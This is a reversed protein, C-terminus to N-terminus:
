TASAVKATACRYQSQVSVPQHARALTVVDPLVLCGHLGAVKVDRVAATATVSTCVLLAWWALQGGVRATGRATGGEQDCIHQRRIVSTSGEQDCM